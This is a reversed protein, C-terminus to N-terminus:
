SSWHYLKRPWGPPTGPDVKTYNKVVLLAWVKAAGHCPLPKLGILQLFGCLLRGRSGERDAGSLRDSTWNLPLQRVHLLVQM